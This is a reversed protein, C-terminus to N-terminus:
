EKVELPGLTAIARQAAERVEANKEDLLPELQTVAEPNGSIGLSQDVLKRSKPDPDNLADVM